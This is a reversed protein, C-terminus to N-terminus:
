SSYVADLKEIEKPNETWSGDERDKEWLDSQKYVTNLDSQSYILEKKEDTLASKVLNLITKAKDSDKM